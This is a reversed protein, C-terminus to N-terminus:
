SGLRIVNLKFTGVLVTVCVLQWVKCEPSIFFFFRCSLIWCFREMCYQYVLQWYCISLYSSLCLVVWCQWFNIVDGYLTPWSMAVSHEWLKWCSTVLQGYALSGQHTFRMYYHGRLEWVLTNSFRCSPWRPVTLIFPRARLKTHYGPISLCISSM